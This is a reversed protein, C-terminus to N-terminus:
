FGKGPGTGKGGGGIQPDAVVGADHRQKATQRSTMFEDESITLGAGM